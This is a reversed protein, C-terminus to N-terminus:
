EARLVTTPDLAIARRAPLLTAVLATAGLV